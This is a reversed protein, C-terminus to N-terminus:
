PTSGRNFDPSLLKAPQNIWAPYRCRRAQPRFSNVGGSVLRDNALIPLVPMVAMTTIVAFLEVRCLTCDHPNNRKCKAPSVTIGLTCTTNNIAFIGFPRPPRPLRPVRADQRCRPPRSSQAGLIINENGHEAHSRRQPVSRRGRAYTGDKFQNAIRQRPAHSRPKESKATERSLANPRKVPM